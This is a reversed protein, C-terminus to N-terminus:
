IKPFNNKEKELPLDWSRCKSKPNCPDLQERGIRFLLPQIPAGTSRACNLVEVSTQFWLTQFGYRHRLFFFTTCRPLYNIITVLLSHMEKFPYISSPLTLHTCSQIIFLNLIKVFGACHEMINWLKLLITKCKKLHSM